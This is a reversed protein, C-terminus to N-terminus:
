FLIPQVWKKVVLSSRFVIMFFGKVIWEENRGPIHQYIQEGIAAGTRHTIILSGADHFTIFGICATVAKKM